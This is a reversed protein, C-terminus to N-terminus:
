RRRLVDLLVHRETARLFGSVWLLVAYTGVVALARLLVGTLPPLDPVAWSGVLTAIAGSAVLRALRSGEYAIPYVSRSLFFAVAAQAVFSLMFSVAAGVLGYAPMLWAGSGLGVGLASFTAVPYYKTNSTLNLGISTLLYVGQCALGVAIFPIVRAAELWEPSLLLLVADRAVAITVASLLVLVAVGYTTMKAFVAKADAQRSTSYYFPAWATEFASTFFRIATGLTVGNQYVGVQRLPLYANLLLKNGADLAQQALGHPVRPLGFRLSESLDDRSFERRVLSTYGRWLLPLLVITLALDAAYMGTVGWGMGIVFVIRLIVTGVSRAFVFASFAVAQNRLRMLHFPIFTVSILSTNLFMLQLAPVYQTGDLVRGAIWSSGAIAAVAVVANVALVFYLLTSTLRALTGAESRDHYARMYAGDLGFRSIVKAFTEIAVIVGLAGYDVLGLYGGKVYVAILLLNVVQILADGAGYIAVGKSLHGVHTRVGTLSARLPDRESLVV